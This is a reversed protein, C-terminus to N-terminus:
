LMSGLRIDGPPPPPPPALRTDSSAQSGSIAAGCIRLTGSLGSVRSQGTRHGARAVNAPLRPQIAAEPEIPRGTHVTTEPCATRFNILGCSALAPCSASACASTREVVIRAKLITSMSPVFSQTTFSRAMAEATHRPTVAIQSSGRRSQLCVYRLRLLIREGITQSKACEQGRHQSLCGIPFVPTQSDILSSCRCRSASHLVFKLRALRSIAICILRLDLVSCQSTIGRQLINRAM